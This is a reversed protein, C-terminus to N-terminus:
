AAVGSRLALPHDPAIKLITPPHYIGGDFLTAYGMALQLPAVAIGQGFGITATQIQGWNSFPYLPRATEPLDTQLPKLLGM